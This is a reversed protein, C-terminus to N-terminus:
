SALAEEAPKFPLGFLEAIPRYTVAGRHLELGKRFGADARLAERYGSEAIRLAYPLTENTLAFTSTRPVCGPMNAVCYHIVGEVVFVPDGHTTPRSTEICGGQDISVDVIVSGRKMEKLHDRTVLFPAKDGKKLVAGILLDARRVVERINYENSILTLVRGHITSEIHRLRDSSVDLVVVEAGMGAAISAANEGVVGAGLVVVTAPPVGPVGALLVGRGGMPRELYKAGEQVALRGAVASMPVLLPLRGDPSEITEYAIGIVRQKVLERTLRESSALHLYTFLIQGDRLLPCESDLPEKVKVIMDARRFIEEASAVIEAGAKSYEADPIATGEGANKQVIVPHGRRRLADVGAPVLAVRAEYEKIEKPVGVIM